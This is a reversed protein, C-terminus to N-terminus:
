RSTLKMPYLGVRTSSILNTPGLASRPTIVSPLSASISSSTTMVCSLDVVSNLSSLRTKLTPLSRALLPPLAKSTNFLTGETSTLISPATVRLPLLPTCIRILPLGDTRASVSPPASPDIVASIISFTSTIVLGDAFYSASPVAPIMLIMRLFSSFFPILPETVSLPPIGSLLLMPKLRLLRVSFNLRNVWSPAPYLSLPYSARRM